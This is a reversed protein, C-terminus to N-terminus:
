QRWASVQGRSQAGPEQQSEGKGSSLSSAGGWGKEARMLAWLGSHM